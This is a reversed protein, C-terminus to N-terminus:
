SSGTMLQNLSVTKTFKCLINVGTDPQPMTARSGLRKLTFVNEKRHDKVMNSYCWNATKSINLMSFVLLNKQKGLDTLQDPKPALYDSDM